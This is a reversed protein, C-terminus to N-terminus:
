TLLAIQQPDAKVRARGKLYLENVAEKGFIRSLSSSTVEITRAANRGASTEGSIKLRVINTTGPVWTCSLEQM